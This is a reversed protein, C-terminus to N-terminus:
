ADTDGAVQKVLQADEAQWLQQLLDALHIELAARRRAQEDPGLSQWDKELRNSLVRYRGALALAETTLEVEVSSEATSLLLAHRGDDRIVLNGDAECCGSVEAIGDLACNRLGYSARLDNHDSSVVRLGFLALRGGLTSMPCRHGHRAYIRDFLDPAKM